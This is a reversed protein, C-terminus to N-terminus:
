SFLGNNYMMLINELKIEPLIKRIKDELSKVLNQSYGLNKQREKEKIYLSRADIQEVMQLEFIRIEFESPDRRTNRYSYGLEKTERCLDDIKSIVWKMSRWTTKSKDGSIYRKNTRDWIKFVQREKAEM